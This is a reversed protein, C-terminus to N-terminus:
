EWGPEQTSERPAGYLHGVPFDAAHIGGWGSYNLSEFIDETKKLKRSETLEQM